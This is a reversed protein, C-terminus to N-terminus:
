TPASGTAANDTANPAGRNRDVARDPHVYYGSADKAQVHLHIVDCGTSGTMGLMTGPQVRDGTKVYVESAHLFQLQDGNALQISITKWQSDPRIQVLGGVPTTFPLRTDLWRENRSAFDVGLHWLVKEDTESNVVYDDPVTVIGGTERFARKVGYDYIRLNTGPLGFDEATLEQVPQRSLTLDVARGQVDDQWTGSLQDGNGSLALDLPAPAWYPDEGGGYWCVAIQGRVRQGDARAQFYVENAPSGAFAGDEVPAPGTPLCVWGQGRHAQITEGDVQVVFAGPADAQTWIGSLGDSRPPPSEQDPPDDAQEAISTPNATITRAGASDSGGGSGGGLKGNFVRGEDPSNGSSGLVGAVLAILTAAAAPAFPSIPTPEPPPPTTPAPTSVLPITPVVPVATNTLTPVPTPTMTTTSTVSPTIATTSTTTPPPTSTATATPTTTGTSTPTSTPTTTATRSSTPTATTTGTATVRPPTPSVTPLHTVVIPPSQACQAAKYASVQPPTLRSYLDGYARGTEIYSGEVWENWSTISILEPHTAIAGQWTTNYFAGGARDRPNGISATPTPAPHDRNRDDYGPMVTAMWIKGPYARTRSAYSALQGAPNPSWAISYPHIGDFVQLYSFIDGEALWIAENQPDAQGRITAWTAVDYRRTGYFVVVPKGRYHLWAPDNFYRKLYILSSTLDGPAPKIARSIDFDATAKFGHGNAVSLLTQLNSDTPNAPGLWNLEFGDIGVGKAQSVQREITARDASVYLPVPFDTTTGSTWTNNDYWAYYMALVTADCAADAPLSQSAFYALALLATFIRAGLM